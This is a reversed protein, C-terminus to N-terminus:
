SPVLAHIAYEAYDEESQGDGYALGEICIVCGVSEAPTTNEGLEYGLMEDGDYTEKPIENSTCPITEFLDGLSQSSLLAHQSNKALSGPKYPPRSYITVTVLAEQITSSTGM